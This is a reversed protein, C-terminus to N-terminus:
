NYRNCPDPVLYKTNGARLYCNKPYNCGPLSFRYIARSGHEAPSGYYRGTDLLSTGDAALIAAGPNGMSSPLLVVLRGDGESVPKWLIGAAQVTQTTPAPTGAPPQTAGPTPWRSPDPYGAPTPPQQGPPVPDVRLEPRSSTGSTTGSSSGNRGDSCSMNLGFILALVVAGL